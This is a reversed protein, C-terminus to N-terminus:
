RLLRLFPLFLFIFERDTIAVIGVIGVIGLFVMTGVIGVLLGYSNSGAISDKNTSRMPTIREVFVCFFQVGNVWRRGIASGVHIGGKNRTGCEGFRELIGNQNPLGKSATTNRGVTTWQLSPMKVLCSVVNIVNNGEGLAAAIVGCIKLCETWGTMTYFSRSFM